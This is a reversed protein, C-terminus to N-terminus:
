STTYWWYAYVGPYPSASAGNYVGDVQHTDRAGDNPGSGKGDWKTSYDRSGVSYLGFTEPCQTGTSSVGVGKYSLSVTNTVCSGIDATSGPKWSQITNGSGYSTGFRLGTIHDCFYCGTDHMTGSSQTADTLYWVGTSTSGVRRTVDCGYVHGHGGDFSQDICAPSGIQTGGGSNSTAPTVSSASDFSALSKNDLNSFSAIDAPNAGMMLLEEYPTLTSGLTIASKNVTGKLAIAVGEAHETAKTGKVTIQRATAAAPTISVPAVAFVKTVDGNAATYTTIFGGSVATVTTNAASANAAHNNPLLAAGGALALAAAALRTLRLRTTAVAITAVQKHIPRMSSGKRHRALYGSRRWEPRPRLRREQAEGTRREAVDFGASNKGLGSLRPQRDRSGHRRIRLGAQSSSLNPSAMSSDRQCAMQLCRSSRTFNSRLRTALGDSTSSMTCSAM